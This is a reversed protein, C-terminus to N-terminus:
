HRTAKRKAHAEVMQLIFRAEVALARHEFALAKTRVHQYTEERMWAPCAPFPDALSPRGGLRVRTMCARILPHGM